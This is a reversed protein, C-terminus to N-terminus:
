AVGVAEEFVATLKDAHRSWTFEARVSRCGEDAIHQMQDPRELILALTQSLSVPDKPKVLLGSVEHTIFADPGQGEVGVALLGSAMAEIYAVGFAERYSPLVFVDAQALREMARDHPLAGLFAVRDALGLDASMRELDGRLPGDGIVCYTWRGAAAKLRAFAQLNLDIGKGEDLNSVSVFRVTQGWRGRVHRESGHLFFGNPVVRFTTDHGALARYHQRLPEGVLVVRSADNLCARIRGRKAASDVLQPATSIGHLTVVSPLRHARAAAVACIGARETHAHVLQINRDRILRDLRARVGLRYLGDAWGSLTYGPLSLFRTTEVPAGLGHADIRISKSAHARHPNSWGFAAPM